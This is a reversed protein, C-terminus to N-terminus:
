RFIEIGSYGFYAGFGVLLVGCCAIVAQYAKDSVRRKGFHILASVLTFWVLDALIHGTYFFSIGLIGQKISFVIYSLGITAWWITWYPNSLSSLIGAWVPHVGAAGKPGKMTLSVKRANRLMSGGMWFLVAGGAIGIVGIVPGKALFRNLGYVLAFVLSLELVGHGLVLLPGARWGLRASQSITMTLMPGPMLAGSFAVLFSTLFIGWLTLM